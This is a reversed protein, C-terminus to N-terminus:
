PREGQTFTAVMHAVNDKYNMNGCHGGIPYITARDGFVEPFFNIEGPELIIDDANHMVSIKEATSLYDAIEQLSIAAIYKDRTIDPYEAKYFPFFFEHYYDTFGLRSAVQDYIALNSYRNLELGRPKVYGFDAVVDATFVVSASSLRFSTGILAALQEDQLNLAQFAKYLFDEGVPDAAENYVKTYARLLNSVFRDFNDMGGPINNIM